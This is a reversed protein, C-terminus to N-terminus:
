QSWCRHVRVGLERRDASAIAAGPVWVRDVSLSIPTPGALPAPLEFVVDQWRYDRILQGVEIGSPLAISVRVPEAPLDPHHAQLHIGVSTANRCHLHFAAKQKTWRFGKGVESELDYWGRGVQGVDDVGMTFGSRVVNLYEDMLVYLEVPTGIRRRGTAGAVAIITDERGSGAGPMTTDYVDVTENSVVGFGCSELLLAVEPATYERNHRGYIGNGHYADNINRGEELARLNAARAVNPTTVVLFGGPRLVRHAEYLMHSPNILLHELIECCLVLDVSSEPLPFLEREVNLAQYTFSYRETGDASELVHESYPAEVEYFSLTAVDADLYRRLLITMSYPVAGLELIRPASPLPPLRRLTEVFRRAHTAVYVEGEEPGHVYRAFFNFRSLYARAEAVDPFPRPSM